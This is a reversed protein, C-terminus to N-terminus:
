LADFIFVIVEEGMQRGGLLSLTSFMLDTQRPLEARYMKRSAPTVGSRKSDMIIRYKKTGDAREKVICAFKNFM